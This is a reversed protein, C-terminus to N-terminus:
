PDIAIAVPVRRPVTVSITQPAYGDASVRIRYAGPGPLQMAGFGLRNVARGAWDFTTETM